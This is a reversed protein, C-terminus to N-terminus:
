PKDWAIDYLRPLRLNRIQLIDRFGQTGILGTRAGKRELIANSGVTTGHRVEGIMSPGIGSEDFCDRLGATIARSYDDVSSSVKRTEVRGDAGVLVIDTFTGGIDIGVRMGGSMRM